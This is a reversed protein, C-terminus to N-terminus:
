SQPYLSANLRSCYEARLVLLHEAGTPSWNMGSRKMRAQIMKCTAEAPGSGIPWHDRRYDPYRMAEKHHDLYGLAKRYAEQREVGSIPHSQREQEFRERIERIQGEWLLAKLIEV